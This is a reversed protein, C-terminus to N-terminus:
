IVEEVGTDNVDSTRSDDRLGFTGLYVMEQVLQDVFEQTEPGEKMLEDLAERPITKYAYTLCKYGKKAMQEVVVREVLPYVDYENGNSDERVEKATDWDQKEFSENYISTCFPVVYEPAGKM